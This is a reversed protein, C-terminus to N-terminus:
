SKAEAVDPQVENAKKKVVLKPMIMGATLGRRTMFAKIPALAKTISEVDVSGSKVLTTLQAAAKAPPAWNEWGDSHANVEKKFDNLFKSAATHLASTKISATKEEEKPEEKEEPKNKVRPKDSPNYKLVTDTIRDLAPLGFDM